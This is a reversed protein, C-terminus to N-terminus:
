YGSIHAKRKVYSHKPSHYMRGGTPHTDFIRINMYSGDFRKLIIEGQLMGFIPSIVLGLYRHM